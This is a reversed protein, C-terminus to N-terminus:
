IKFLSIRNNLVEAISALNEAAGAIGEIQGAQEETTASVEQASAATKKAINFVTEFDEMVSDAEQVVKQISCNVMEIEQAMEQIEHHIEEFNQSAQNVIVAGAKLAHDNMTMSDTFVRIQEKIGNIAVSIQNASEASQDALKRIEEAVVAFGRGAEGARAAEIAANLALLNIQEYVSGILVMVSAIKDSAQNLNLIKEVTEETNAKILEIKEAAEYSVRRGETTSKLNEQSLQLVKQIRKSVTDTHEFIQDIKMKSQEITLSEDDTDKSLEIAVANVEEVAASVQQSSASLQQSAASIEEASLVAQEIFGRLERVMRNFSEVLLGTEDRTEIKIERNLDGAAVAQAAISFQQIPRTISRTILLSILFSLAIAIAIFGVTMGKTRDQLRYLDTIQEDVQKEKFSILAAVTLKIEQTKPYAKFQMDEIAEEEIGQEKLSLIKESIGDYEKAQAILKEILEREESNQSNTLTIDSSQIRESQALKFNDIFERRGTIIFGRLSVDQELASSQINKGNQISSMAEEIMAKSTEQIHFM